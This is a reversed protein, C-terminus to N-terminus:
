LAVYSAQLNKRTKANKPANSIVAWTFCHNM